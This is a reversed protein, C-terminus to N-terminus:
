RSNESGSIKIQMLQVTNRDESTPDKIGVKKCLEDTSIDPNIWLAAIISRRAQKFNIPTNPQHPGSDPKTRSIKKRMWSVPNWETHVEYLLRPSTDDRKSAALGM